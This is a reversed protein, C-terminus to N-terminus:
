KQIIAASIQGFNKVALLGGGGHECDPEDVAVGAGAVLVM